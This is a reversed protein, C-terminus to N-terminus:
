TNSRLASASASAHDCVVLLMVRKTIKQKIKESIYFFFVFTFIAHILPLYPHNRTPFFITKINQCVCVLYTIQIPQSISYSLKSIDTHIFFFSTFRADLPFSIFDTIARVIWVNQLLKRFGYVVRIGIAGDTYNWRPSFYFQQATHAIQSVLQRVTHIVRSHAPEHVLGLWLYPAFDSVLFFCRRNGLFAWWSELSSRLM